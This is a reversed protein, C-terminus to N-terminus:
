FSQNKRTIVRRAGLAAASLVMLTIPILVTDDGTKPSVSPKEPTSVKVTNSKVSYTHNIDLDFQNEYTTGEKTVKGVVMPAPVAAEKTRDANIQTILADKGTFVLSRSAEDYEVDYDPSASKTAELDLEYGEPLTDRFIVSDITEHGAPFPTTTLEFKVISGTKVTNTDIDKNDQDLVKKEVQPKVYLVDYHYSAMIVPKVPETPPTPPTPEVPKPPAAIAKIKSNLAFWVVGRKSAGININIEPNTVKGVIAGYWANSNTDSDWESTNFRSGASKQENNNSAYAGGDPQKTISSGSIEIFEGNFSRVKEVTDQGDVKPTSSTGIGHNLSSFNLLAGTPDIVNGDEDYFKVKMNIDAEGYFNLYWLTVTPDKEILAPMSDVGPLGTNKLTYTYEVKSIKKGNFYSNQLNTYQVKLPQDKHLIVRTEDANAVSNIYNFDNAGYAPNSGLQSSINNDFYTKWESQTYTQDGNPFSMTANPESQFTLSQSAPEKMYGDENKKRELEEMAANYAALDTNYQALDSDYQAKDTNYQALATDYAAKKTAYEALKQRAEQAAAKLAEIQSNYDETIEAKKADLETQSTASGKDVDADQTVTVGDAKAATVAADLNSSDVAVEIGKEPDVAAAQQPSIPLLAVAILLSLAIAGTRQFLSRQMERVKRAVQKKFCTM